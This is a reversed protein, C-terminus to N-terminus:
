SGGQAEPPRPKAPISMNHSQTMSRSADAAIAIRFSAGVGLQSTVTIDGGLMQAFRRSIALGLGTGGFKRTKSSDAQTFTEFIRACQESSMGIGTDSIEIIVLDGGDARSGDVRRADLTITGKDTFKAANGLLNLLIQRVKTIDTFVTGLEPASRLEIRNGNKAILPAVTSLTEAIITSLEAHEPTIEMKGAEIKSLDLINNILSLLHRGASKIRKLDPLIASQGADMAEEELLESYGLIANLPTRLEHSM